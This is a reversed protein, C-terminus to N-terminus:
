LVRTQNVTSVHYIVVMQSGLELPDLAKQPNQPYWVQMHFM